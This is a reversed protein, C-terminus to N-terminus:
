DVDVGDSEVTAEKELNEEYGWVRVQPTEHDTWALWREDVHYAAKATVNLGKM